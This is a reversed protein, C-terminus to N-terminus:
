SIPEFRFRGVKSTRHGCRVLAEAMPVAVAVGDIVPVGLADSMRRDLGSLGACGLTLVEAGDREVALRGADTMREELTKGTARGDVSRVSACRAELGLRRIMLRKMPVSRESTQLISFREGLTMAMLFSCEGVGLVPRDTAERLLDINVDCTCAVIAADFAGDCEELVRLMGPACLAWERYNEIFAPADPANVCTLETGPSATKRATADILRTFSEDSNPNIVLLRM